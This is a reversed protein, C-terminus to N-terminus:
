PAPQTRNAVYIDGKKSAREAANELSVADKSIKSTEYELTYSIDEPDTDMDVPAGGSNKNVGVVRFTLTLSGTDDINLVVGPYDSAHITLTPKYDM